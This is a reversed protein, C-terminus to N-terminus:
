SLIAGLYNASATQGGALEHLIQGVAPRLNKIRNLQLAAATQQWKWQWQWSVASVLCHSNGGGGKETVGLLRGEVEGGLRVVGNEECHM